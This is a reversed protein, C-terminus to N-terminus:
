WHGLAGVLAKWCGRATRPRLVMRGIMGAAISLRVAVASVNGLHKRAYRLQNRYYAQSFGQTGLARASYGGEHIFEADRAFFIDWGAAALRNCFDVDEYWAPHFQEDFGGIDDYAARRILLAAAAPQQVKRPNQDPSWHEVRARFGLNEGMLSATSPLKRPLYKENVYGGVAGVRSHAEMVKELKAIAGATVRIDPNLMLVYRASTARFAQNMAAALGRNTRNRMFEVRHGLVSALEISDDSSANDVVLVEVDTATALVSEVCELLWPGSNWNVIAVVICM